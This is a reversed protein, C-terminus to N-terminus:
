PHSIIQKVIWDSVFMFMAAWVFVLPIFGYVPLKSIIGILGGIILFMSTLLHWMRMYIKRDERSIANVEKMVWALNNTKNLDIEADLAKEIAKEETMAEFKSPSMPSMVNIFGYWAGTSTPNQIRALVMLRGHSIFYFVPKNSFLFNKKKRKM